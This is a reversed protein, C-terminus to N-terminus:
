VTVAKRKNLRSVEVMFILAQAWEPSPTGDQCIVRRVYRESTSTGPRLNNMRLAIRLAWVSFEPDSFEPPDFRAENAAARDAGLKDVGLDALWGMKEVLKAAVAKNVDFGKAGDSIIGVTLQQVAKAPEAMSSFIIGAQEVEIPGTSNKKAM